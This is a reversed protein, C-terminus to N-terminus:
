GAAAFIEEVARAFFRVVGPSAEFDDVEVGLGCLGRARIDRIMLGSTMTPGGREIELDRPSWFRLLRRERGKRLTLDLFPEDVDIPERELRIAIIEYKFAM